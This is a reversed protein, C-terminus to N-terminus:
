PTLLARLEALMLRPTDFVDGYTYRRLDDAVPAPRGSAAATRSGPTAPTTTRTATSSSTLRHDPWRCDVRHTGAVNNTVPLPLGEERLLELFRSELRSLTVHVDGRLITQLKAAGPTKPRRALV